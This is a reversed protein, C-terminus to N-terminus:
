KAGRSLFAPSRKIEIWIERCLSVYDQVTTVCDDELDEMSLARDDFCEICFRSFSKSDENRDLYKELEIRTFKM